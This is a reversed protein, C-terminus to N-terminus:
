PSKTKIAAKQKKHWKKDRSQVICQCAFKAVKLVQEDKYNSFYPRLFLIAYEVWNIWYRITQQSVTGLIVRNVSGPDNCKQSSYPNKVQLPIKASKTNIIGKHLTHTFICTTLITYWITCFCVTTDFCNAILMKKLENLKELCIKLVNCKCVQM